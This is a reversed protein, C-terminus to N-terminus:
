LGMRIAQLYRLVNIMADGGEALMYKIASRGNFLPAKNPRNPWSEAAEIDFLSGLAGYIGIMLGARFMQDESLSADAPAEIAHAYDVESICLLRAVDALEMRWALGIKRTARLAAPSMRRCDDANMFPDSKPIVMEKLLARGTLVTPLAPSGVAVDADDPM